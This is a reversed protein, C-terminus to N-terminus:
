LTGAPNHLYNPDIVPPEMPNSSRIYIRGHSYPHQLAATIGIDGNPDSNMLLLEIQGMPSNFIKSTTKYIAEYGAIVGADYTTVPRYHNMQALADANYRKADSGYITTANVYAVASNIYSLYLSNNQM